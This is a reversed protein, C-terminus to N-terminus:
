WTVSTSLSRRLANLLTFYCSPPGRQTGTVQM